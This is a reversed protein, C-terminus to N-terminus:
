PKIKDEMSPIPQYRELVIGPTEATLSSYLVVDEKIIGGPIKDIDENWEFLVGNRDSFDFMNPTANTCGLHEVQAIVTDPMPM